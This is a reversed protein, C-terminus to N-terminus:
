VSEQEWTKIVSENGSVCSPPLLCGVFFSAFDPLVFCFNVNWLMMLKLLFLSFITEEKDNDDNDDDDGKRCSIVFVKIAVAAPLNEM